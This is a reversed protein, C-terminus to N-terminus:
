GNREVELPCVMVISDNALIPDGHNDFIVACPGEPLDIDVAWVNGDDTVVYDHTTPHQITEAPVFYGTQTYWNPHVIDRPSPATVTASAFGACVTIAGIIFALVKKM